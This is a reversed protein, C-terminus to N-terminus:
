GSLVLLALVLSIVMMIAVDGVQRLLELWSRSALITM